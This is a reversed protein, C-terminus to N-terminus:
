TISQKTKTSMDLSCTVIYEFFKQQKHLSQSGFVGFKYKVWRGM